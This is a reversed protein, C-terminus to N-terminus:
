MRDNFYIQTLINHKQKAFIIAIYWKKTENEYTLTEDVKWM